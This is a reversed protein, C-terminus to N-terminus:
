QRAPTLSDFVRVGEWNDQYTEIFEMHPETVQYADQAATDEFVITLAVDFDLDNVDRQYDKHRPGAAFFVIGDHPALFEYCGDVLAQVSAPDDNKLEFFVAHTLRPEAM